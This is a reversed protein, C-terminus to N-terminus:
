RSRYGRCCWRRHSVLRLAAQGSRCPRTGPLVDGQHGGSGSLRPPAVSVVPHGASKFEPTILKGANQAAIAFSVLTPPVDLENLSGSMSDKGGIAAVGLGIQATFAGLLASFPKGWREPETRLREFYEQFTLYLGCRSRLRCGGAQLRVRRCGTAAGALPEALPFPPTSAM